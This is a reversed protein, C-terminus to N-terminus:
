DTTEYFYDLEDGKLHEQAYVDAKKWLEDYVEAVKENGINYHQWLKWNLVMVLETLMKYDCASKLGNLYTDKIADIGFMDAISFDEWYTTQPKYGTMEEIGWKQIRMNNMIEM